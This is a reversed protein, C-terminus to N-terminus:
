DADGADAADGGDGADGADGDGADGCTGGTACRCEGYVQSDCWCDGACLINGCTRADPDPAAFPPCECVAACAGGDVLTTRCMCGDACPEGACKGEDYPGPPPPGGTSSPSSSPPRGPMCCTPPFVFGGCAHSFDAHENEPCGISACSGGAPTCTDPTSLDLSLDPGIDCGGCGSGAALLSLLALFRRNM